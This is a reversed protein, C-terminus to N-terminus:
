SSIKCTIGSVNNAQFTASSCPAIDPTNTGGTGLTLEQVTGYNTVTPAEYPIPTSKEM